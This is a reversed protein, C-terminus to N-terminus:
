SQETDVMCVYVAVCLCLYLCVYLKQINDKTDKAQEYKLKLDKFISVYDVSELTCM